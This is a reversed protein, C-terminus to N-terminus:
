EGADIDRITYLIIKFYNMISVKCIRCNASDDNKACNLLAIYGCYKDPGIVYSQSVLSAKKVYIM